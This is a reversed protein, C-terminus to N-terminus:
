LWPKAGGPHGRITGVSHSAIARDKRGTDSVNKKRLLEGIRAKIAMASM